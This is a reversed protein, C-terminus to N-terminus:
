YRELIWLRREDVSLSELFKMEEEKVTAYREILEEGLLENMVEDGKLEKLAEPLGAPLMQEVGLEKRDNKTLSAPDVECDGWTLKEGKMVGYAGAGLLAAIALYPNALGDLCKVEWHSDECKRLPTERNQTGWTVWRGGAWCGDQVREYSVPNSYTLAAIARLHKLIGAYFPGYTEPKSGNPSTISMHVHAATGCSKPYPKPHLSMRYGESQAIGSIVERVYLLTDVAELPPARPLVVEFQGAASEPHIQEIYIGKSDLEAVAREIVKVFVPHDMMRSTSWAHGDNRLTRYKEPGDIRELLLLEIEFGVHFTLGRRAANEVVRQLLSRPCLPVVSGDQERFDGFVSIHGDRPGEQLSTFDPHLRYEGTGSAGAVVMDNQLLGLSAKTISISFDGDENMVSLVKRMPVARVRPTATMDNWYIRLYQPPKKGDLFAELIDLDSRGSLRRPNMHSEEPSFSFGLHYIHNSNNFLVDKVLQTAERWTMHGKRAYECLVKEMVEKVQLVALLYTEPFWHGDTSWIIKSWPCLELIQRLATEQGDRSLFPFIEGIDAYVNAYVCALYGAERTYPYSAHLLVIPVTPYQRIFEQLHAPSASTLTIDNDGLGTHFQIPKKGSGETNRILCALRHVLYENLGPHNVRTFANDTGKTHTAYIGEFAKRAFAADPKRPIALGTRYCIVSKFGVVEPDAIAELISSDFAKLAKDFVANSDEATRATGEDVPLHENFIDAAIKEIRVIRKAPSRTLSSFYTYPYVANEGDLGDDVLVSEIGNLCEEVWADYDEIRKAEIANVVAEWSPECRLVKALQKVARLHALSTLSAHIADGHAETTISLLPYRGIAELDLLPHAHNDIIPTTQITHSLLAQGTLKAPDM